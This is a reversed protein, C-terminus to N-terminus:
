EWPKRGGFIWEGIRVAPSVTRIGEYLPDAQGGNLSQLEADSLDMAQDAKSLEVQTIANTMIM